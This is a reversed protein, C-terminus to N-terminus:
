RLAPKCPHFLAQRVDIWWNAANARGQVPLRAEGEQMRGHQRYRLCQGLGIDALRFGHGLHVQRRTEHILEIQICETGAFAHPALHYQALHRLAIQRVIKGPSGFGVELEAAAHTCQLMRQRHQQVCTIADRDLLGSQPKEVVSMAAQVSAEAAHPGRYWRYTLAFFRARVATGAPRNAFVM